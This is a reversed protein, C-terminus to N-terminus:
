YYDETQLDFLDVLGLSSNCSCQKFIYMSPSNDTEKTETNKDM